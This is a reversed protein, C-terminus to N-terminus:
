KVKKRATHVVPTKEAVIPQVDETAETITTDEVMPEKAAVAEEPKNAKNIKSLWEQWCEDSCVIQKYPYKRLGMECCYYEKGCVKCKFNTGAM